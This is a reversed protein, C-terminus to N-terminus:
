ILETPTTTHTRAPTLIPDLQEHPHEGTGHGARGPPALVLHVAITPVGQHGM